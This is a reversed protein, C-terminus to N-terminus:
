IHIHCDFILPWLHFTLPWSSMQCKYIVLTENSLDYRVLIIIKAKQGYPTKMYFKLEIPKIPKQSAIDYYM